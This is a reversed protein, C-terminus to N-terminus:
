KSIPDRFFYYTLTFDNPHDRASIGLIRVLLPCKSMSLLLSFIVHVRFHGDTPWHLPVQFLNESVTRLLFGGQWCKSKLTGTELVTVSCEQQKLWETQSVWCVLECYSGSSIVTLLWTGLGLGWWVPWTGNIWRMGMLKNEPCTRSSVLGVKSQRLRFFQHVSMWWQWCDIM